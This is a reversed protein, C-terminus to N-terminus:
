FDINIEYFKHGVVNLILLLSVNNNHANFWHLYKIGNRTFHDSLVSNM